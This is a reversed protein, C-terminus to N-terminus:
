SPLRRGLANKLLNRHIPAERGTIFVQHGEKMYLDAVARGVFGTGGTELVSM